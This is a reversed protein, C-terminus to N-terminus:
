DSYHGHRVADVHLGRDSRPVSGQLPARCQHADLTVFGRAKATKIFTKVVADSLDLLPSEEEPAEVQQAQEDARTNAM